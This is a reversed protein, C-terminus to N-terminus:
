ANRMHHTRIESQQIKQSDRPPDNSIQGPKIKHMPVIRGFRQTAFTAVWTPEDNLVYAGPGRGCLIRLRVVVDSGWGRDISDVAAGIEAIIRPLYSM